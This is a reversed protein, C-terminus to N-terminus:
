MSATAAQHLSELWELDSPAIVSELSSLLVATCSTSPGAVLQVLRRLDADLLPAIM